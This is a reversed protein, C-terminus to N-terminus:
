TQEKYKELTTRALKGWEDATFKICSLGGVETGERAHYAYFELAERYRFLKEINQAVELKHALEDARQKQKEYERKWSFLQCNM